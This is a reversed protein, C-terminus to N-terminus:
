GKLRRSFTPSFVVVLSTERKVLEGLTLLSILQRTTVAVCTPPFARMSENGYFEHLCVRDLAYQVRWYRSGHYGIPRVISSSSYMDTGAHILTQNLDWSFLRLQSTTFECPPFIHMVYPNEQASSCSIIGAATKEQLYSIVNQLSVCQHLMDTGEVMTQESSALALCMCYNLPERLKWQVAELQSNELRMRQAIRLLGPGTSEESNADSMAHLCNQILDQNGALYLMRVSVRDNKLSMFGRWVIPFKDELFRPEPWFFNANIPPYRSVPKNLISLDSNQPAPHLQTASHLTGPSARATTDVFGPQQQQQAHNGLFSLLAAINHLQPQAQPSIQQAIVTESAPRSASPTMLTFVHLQDLISATVPPHEDIQLAETMQPHLQHQVQSVTPSQEKSTMDTRPQVSRPLLAASHGDPFKTLPPVETVANPLLTSALIPHLNASKQSAVLLDSQKSSASYVETATSGSMQVFDSAATSSPTSVSPLRSSSSLRQMYDEQEFEGHIVSNIVETVTDKRTTPNVELEPEDFNPEYPDVSMRVPSPTLVAPSANVMHSSKHSSMSASRATVTTSVKQQAPKRSRKIKELSQSNEEKVQDINQHIYDTANPLSSKADVPPSDNRNPTKISMRQILQSTNPNVTIQQQQQKLNDAAITVPTVLSFTSPTLVFTPQGKPILSPSSATGSSSADIANVVLAIHQNATGNGVSSAPIVSVPTLLTLSQSQTPSQFPLPSNKMDSAEQKSTEAETACPLLTLGSEDFNGVSDDSKLSKVLPSTFILDGGCSRPRKRVEPPSAKPEVKEEVKSEVVEEILEVEVRENIVQLKSEKEEFVETLKAQKPEKRLPPAPLSTVSSMEDISEHDIDSSIQKELLPLTDLLMEGGASPEEVKDEDKVENKDTSQVPSCSRSIQPTSTTSSSASLHRRDLFFARSAHGSPFVYDSENGSENSSCVSNANRVRRKVTTPIAMKSKTQMDNSKPEESVRHKGSVSVLRRKKAALMEGTKHNDTESSSGCESDPRKLRSKKVSKVGSRGAGLSKPTLHPPKTSAQDSSAESDYVSTRRENKMKHRRSKLFSKLAEPKAELRENSPDKNGRRKIKDYMSEYHMADTILDDPELTESVSGHPKWDDEDSEQRKKRLKKKKIIPDDKKSIANHSDSANQPSKALKLALAPNATRDRAFEEEKPLKKFHLKNREFPTTPPAIFQRRPTLDSIPLPKESITPPVERVKRSKPPVIEESFKSSQGKDKSSKADESTSKSKSSSVSLKPSKPSVYPALLTSSKRKYTVHSGNLLPPRSSQPSSLPLVKVGKEMEGDQIPQSTEKIKPDVVSTKLPPSPNGSFLNGKKLIGSSCAYERGSIKNGSNWVDSENSNPVSLVTLPSQAGHLPFLLSKPTVSKLNSTPAGHLPSKTIPSLLSPKDLLPQPVPASLPLPPLSPHHHASVFSDVITNTKSSISSRGSSLMSKVFESIDTRRTPGPSTSTASSVVDSSTPSTFYRLPSLKMDTSVSTVSTGISPMGAQVSSTTGTTAKTSVIVSKRRIRFKSYDVAPRIRESHQLKADLRRIREDLSSDFTDVTTQESDSDPLTKPPQKSLSAFPPHSLQLFSRSEYIPSHTRAIMSSIESDAASVKVEWRQPSHAVPISDFNTPIPSCTPIGPSPVVGSSLRNALPPPPPPPLPPSTPPLPPPRAQTATPSSHDSAMLLVPNPSFVVDGPDSSSSQGASGSSRSATFGAGDVGKSPDRVTNSESLPASETTNSDAGDYGPQTSPAAIAQQKTTLLSLKMLLEDRERHLKSLADGNSSPALFSKQHQQDVSTRSCDSLKARNPAHKISGVASHSEGNAEIPRLLQNSDPTSVTPERLYRRSSGMQPSSPDERNHRHRELNTRHSSKRKSSIRPRESPQKHSLSSEKKGQKREVTSSDSCTSVAYHSKRSNTWPLQRHPSMEDHNYGVSHQYSGGGNPMRSCDFLSPAMSKRCQSYKSGRFSSGPLNGFDRSPSNRSYISGRNPSGNHSNSHHSSRSYGYKNLRSSDTLGILAALDKNRRGFGGQSGRSEELYSMLGGCPICAEFLERWKERYKGFFTNLSSSKDIFAFQCEVSAFDIQVKRGLLSRNRTENLARQAAEVADFYLLARGLKMDLVIDKLRGYRGFQRSLFSETVSPSLNDLWVVTSPQSKGFGLKVPKGSVMISEQNSLARVVSKIDTFQVFAYSTGPQNTQTKIDIEIIEGYERFVRTLEDQSITASCLNGVFLTKTAKPHYEDMAHEPPCLDPDEIDLGDVLEAHVSVGFFVKCKSHEYAKEADDSLKFTIHAFRNSGAGRIALSTIKGHKKYEHFLGERLNTDSSRLPLQTIKLGRLGGERHGSERSDTKSLRDEFEGNSKRHDRKNLSYSKKTRIFQSSLSNTSCSSSSSDTDIEGALSKSDSASNSRQDSKQRSIEPCPADSSECFQLKLFNKHLKVVSEVAKTASRTEAFTAIAGDNLIKISQIKGYSILVGRLEDETFSSPLNSIWIYRTITRM